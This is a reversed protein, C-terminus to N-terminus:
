MGAAARAERVNKVIQNVYESTLIPAQMDIMDTVRDLMTALSATMPSSLLQRMQDPDQFLEMVSQPVNSPPAPLTPASLADFPISCTHM